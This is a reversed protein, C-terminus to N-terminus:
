IKKADVYIQYNWIFKNLVCINLTKMNTCIYMCVMFSIILSVVFVSYEWICMEYVYMNESVYTCWFLVYVYTYIILM